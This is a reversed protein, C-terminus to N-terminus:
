PRVARVFGAAVALVLIGAVAILAALRGRNRPADVMETTRRPVPSSPYSKQDAIMELMMHSLPNEPDTLPVLV